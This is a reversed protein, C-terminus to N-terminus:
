LKYFCRQFRYKQWPQKKKLFNCMHIYKCLYSWLIIPKLYSGIHNILKPIKLNENEENFYNHCRHMDNSERLHKLDTICISFLLCVFLVRYKENNPKLGLRHNRLHKLDTICISSLLYVLLGFGTNRM